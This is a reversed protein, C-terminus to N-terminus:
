VTKFIKAEVTVSAAAERQAALVEASEPTPKPLSIGVPRM